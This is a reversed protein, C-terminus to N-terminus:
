MEKAIYVHDLTAANVNIQQTMVPGSGTDFWGGPLLEISTGNNVGAAAGFNIYLSEAVAINQGAATAPNEIWIRKRAPNTAVLQQSTGAVAIFSSRDTITGQLIAASVPLPNPPSVETPQNSSNRYNVVVGAQAFASSAWLCAIFIGVLFRM